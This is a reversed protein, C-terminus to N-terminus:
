DMGELSDSLVFSAKRGSSNPFFTGTTPWLLPVPKHAQEGKKSFHQINNPKRLHEEYSTSPYFKCGKVLSDFLVSDIVLPCFGPLNRKKWINM